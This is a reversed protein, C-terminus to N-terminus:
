QTSQNINMLVKFTEMRNFIFVFGLKTIQINLLLLILYWRKSTKYLLYSQFHCAFNNGGLYRVKIFFFFLYILVGRTQGAALQWTWIIWCKQKSPKTWENMGQSTGTNPSCCVSLHPGQCPGGNLGTKPSPSCTRYLVVLGSRWTRWDTRGRAMGAAVERWAVKFSLKRCLTTCQWM